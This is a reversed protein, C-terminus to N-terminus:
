ACSAYLWEALPTGRGGSLRVRCPLATIVLAYLLLDNKRANLTPGRRSTIRGSM